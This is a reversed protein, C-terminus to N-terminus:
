RMLKACLEDLQELNQYKLKLEGKGNRDRLEVGLGLANALTTELDRTDADKERRRRVGTQAAGANLAAKALTETQRVNLGEAVVREALAEAGDFDLLARAHGASLRGAEVHAKVPEPLRMLRLTNAVHGRSKGVVQAISEANYGFRAELAAYGRAEELANLDARQINEILAVEMVEQDTLDRIVAPVTRLGAAQAARWRREGAVIQFEDNRGPRPRVVIPTIVGRAKVSDTLEALAEPEFIRRPQEPNRHILEISLERVGTQARAEPTTAASAEDLLASLGRGLGRRGEAM